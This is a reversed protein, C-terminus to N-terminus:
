QLVAYDQSDFVAHILLLMPKSSKITCDLKIDLCTTVLRPDILAGRKVKLRLKRKILLMYLYESALFLVTLM